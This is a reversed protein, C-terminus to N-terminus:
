LCNPFLLRCVHMHYAVCRRARRCINMFNRETIKLLDSTVAQNNQDQVEIHGQGQVYSGLHPVRCVAKGDKM